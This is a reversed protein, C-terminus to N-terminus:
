LTRYYWNIITGNEDFNISGLNLIGSIIRFIIDIEKTTFDLTKFANLTNQYEQKDTIGDDRKIINNNLYNFNKNNIFYKKKEKEDMGILIQYFIHFNRERKNQYILRIQDMVVM